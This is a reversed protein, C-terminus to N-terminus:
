DGGPLLLSVCLGLPFGQGCPPLSEVAVGHLHRHLAIEIVRIIGIDRMLQRHRNVGPLRIFGQVLQAALDPQLPLSLL